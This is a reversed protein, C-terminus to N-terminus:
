PAAAGLAAGALVGLLAIRRVWQRMVEDGGRRKGVRIRVAPERARRVVPTRATVVTSCGRPGTVRCQFCLKNLTRHTAAAILAELKPPTARAARAYTLGSRSTAFRWGLRISM